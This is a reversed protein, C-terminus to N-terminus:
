GLRVKKWMRLCEQLDSVVAGTPHASTKRVLAVICLAQCFTEVQSSIKEFNPRTMGGGEAWGRWMELMDAIDAAREESEVMEYVVNEVVGELEAGIEKDVHGNDILWVRAAEGAVGAGLRPSAIADTTEREKRKEARLLEKRADEHMAWMEEKMRDMRAAQAEEPKMRMEKFIRENKMRFRNQREDDEEQQEIRALADNSHWAPVEANTMLGLLVLVGCPLSSSHSFAIYSSPIAFSWLGGSPTALATCAINFWLCTPTMSLQPSPNRFHPLTLLLKPSDEHYAQDLGSSSVRLRVPSPLQPEDTDADGSEDVDDSEGTETIHKKKELDTSDGRVKRKGGPRIRLWYPPLRGTLPRDWEPEWALSLSLIGDSDDSRAVMLVADSTTPSLLLKTGAPTWLGSSRLDALGQHCPVAGRDLLFAVLGEFPIEAQPQVLEDHYQLRYSKSGIAMENWYFISWSGGRLNSRRPKTKWYAPDNRDLPQLSLRPIEIEVIGSLLSSRTLAEVGNEQLTRRIARQTLVSQLTTSLTPLVGLVALPVGVYTIINQAEAQSMKLVAAVAAKIPTTTSVFDPLRETKLTM